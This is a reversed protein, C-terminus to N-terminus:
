KKYNEFEIEIGQGAEISYEPSKWVISGDITSLADDGFPKKLKGKVSVLFVDKSIYKVDFFGDYLVYGVGKNEAANSIKGVLFSGMTATTPYGDKFQVQYPKSKFWDNGEISVIVNGMNQDKLSIKVGKQDVIGGGQFVSTSDYFNVGDISLSIKAHNDKLSDLVIATKKSEDEKVNPTCSLLFSACFFAILYKIM